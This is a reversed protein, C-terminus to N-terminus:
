SIWGSEKVGGKFRLAVLRRGESYINVITPKGGRQTFRHARGMCALIESVHYQLDIAESTRSAGAKRDISRLRIGRRVCQCALALGTPGAGV